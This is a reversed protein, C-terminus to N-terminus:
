RGSLLKAFVVLEGANLDSVATFLFDDKNWSLERFGSREFDPPAKQGASPQV